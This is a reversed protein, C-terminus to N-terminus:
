LYIDLEMAYVSQEGHEENLYLKIMYGGRDIEIYDRYFFADPGASELAEDLSQGFYFSKFKWPQAPTDDFQILEPEVIVKSITDGIASVVTHGDFLFMRKGRNLISEGFPEFPIASIKSSNRATDTDLLTAFYTLFQNNVNLVPALIDDPYAFNQNSLEFGNLTVTRSQQHNTLYQDALVTLRQGEKPPEDVLAKYETQDLSQGKQYRDFLAWKKEDFRDDFPIENLLRYRFFDSESSIKKLEDHHFTFWHGRGYSIVKWDDSPSFIFSPTGFKELVTQLNDGPNIGYVGDNLDIRRSEVEPQEKSDGLELTLASGVETEVTGLSLQVAGNPAIPTLKRSVGQKDECSLILEATLWLRSNRTSLDVKRDVLAIVDAGRERAKNEFRQLLKNTEQEIEATVARSPLHGSLTVTDLVEYDCAPFHSVFEVTSADATKQGVALASFLLGALSVCVPTFNRKM